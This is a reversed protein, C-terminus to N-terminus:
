TTCHEAIYERISDDLTFWEGHHRLHGFRHHLDLEDAYTGEISGYLRLETECHQQLIAFRQKLNHTFGIKVRVEGGIFYVFGPEDGYRGYDYQGRRDQDQAAEEDLRRQLSAEEPSGDLPVDRAIIEAVHIALMERHLSNHRLRWYRTRWSLVASSVRGGKHRVQRVLRKQKGYQIFDGPRLDDVLAYKGLRSTTARSM